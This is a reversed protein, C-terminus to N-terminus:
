ELWTVNVLVVLQEEEFIEYRLFGRGGPFILTRFDGQDIVTHVLSAASPDVRLLAVTGAVYGQLVTPAGRLQDRV